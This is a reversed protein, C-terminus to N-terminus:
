SPSTRAPKANTIDGSIRSVMGTRRGKNARISLKVNLSLGRCLLLIVNHALHTYVLFIAAFADELCQIGVVFFDERFFVATTDGFNRGGVPSRHPRVFLQNGFCGCRCRDAQRTAHPAKPSASLFYERGKLILLYFDISSRMRETSNSNVANIKKQQEFIKPPVRHSRGGIPM